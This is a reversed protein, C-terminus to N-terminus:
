MWFHYTNQFEFPSQERPFDRYRDHEYAFHGLQMQSEFSSEVSTPAASRLDPQMQPELSNYGVAATPTFSTQAQGLSRYASVEKWSRVRHMGAEIQQELQNLNNISLTELDEGMLHRISAHLMERENKLSAMERTMQDEHVRYLQEDAWLDGTYTDLLSRSSSAGGGRQDIPLGGTYRDIIQKMSTSPSCYEFMKGRSSFVVIGLKVDCLIALEQAKKMLGRRRKCFTVDRHKPHEIRKIDIKRRGM